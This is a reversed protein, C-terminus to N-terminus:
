RDLRFLGNLKSGQIYGETIHPMNSSIRSALTWPVLFLPSIVDCVYSLVNLCLSFSLQLIPALPPINDNLTLVIITQANSRM